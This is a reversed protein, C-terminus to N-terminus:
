KEKEKIKEDDKIFEEIKSKKNKNKNESEEMKLQKQKVKEKMGRKYIKKKKQRGEYVNFQNRINNTISTENLWIILGTFTFISGLIIFIM